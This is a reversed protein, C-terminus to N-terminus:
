APLSVDRVYDSDISKSNRDRDIIGIFHEVDQAPCLFRGNGCRVLMNVLRTEPNGAIAKVSVNRMFGGDKRIQVAVEPLHKEITAIDKM